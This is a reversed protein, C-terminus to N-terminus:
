FRFFRLCSKLAPAIENSNWKWKFFSKMQTQILWTTMQFLTHNDFNFWQGSYILFLNLVNWFWIGFFRLLTFMFHFKSTKIFLLTHTFRKLIHFTHFTFMSLIFRKKFAKSFRFPLNKQLVWRLLEKFFTIRLIECFEFSLVQTPTEIKIFKCAKQFRFKKDINKSNGLKM